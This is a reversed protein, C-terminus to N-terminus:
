SGTARHADLSAVNAPLAPATPSALAGASDELATEHAAVTQRLTTMGQEALRLAQQLSTTLQRQRHLLYALVGGAIIAAFTVIEIM